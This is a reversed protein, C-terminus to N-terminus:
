AGAPLAEAKPPRGPRRPAAPGPSVGCLARLDAVSWALIGNIRLPRIPGAQTCAWIRLTQPRRCLHFAACDTPVVVRPEQELPLYTKPPKPAKM